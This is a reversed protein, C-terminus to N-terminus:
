LQDDLVHINYPYDKIRRLQQLRAAYKKYRPDHFNQVGVTRPNIGADRADSLLVETVSVWNPQQKLRKSAVVFTLKRM